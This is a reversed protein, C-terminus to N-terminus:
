RRFNEPEDSWIFQQATKNSMANEELFLQLHTPKYKTTYITDSSLSISFNLDIMTSKFTDNLNHFSKQPFPWSAM